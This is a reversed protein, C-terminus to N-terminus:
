GSANMFVGLMIDELSQDHRICSMGVQVGAGPVGHRICLPSQMARVGYKADGIQLATIRRRSYAVAPCALAAFEGSQVGCPTRATKDVTAKAFASAKRSPPLASDVWRVRITLGAGTLGMLLPRAFM